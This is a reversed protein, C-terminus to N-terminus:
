RKADGGESRLALRSSKIVRVDVVRKFSSQVLVALQTSTLSTEVELQVLRTEANRAYAAKVQDEPWLDGNSM